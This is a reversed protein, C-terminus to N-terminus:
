PYDRHEVPATDVTRGTRASERAAAVLEVNRYGDDADPWGSAGQTAALFAGM